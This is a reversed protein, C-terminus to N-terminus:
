RISRKPNILKNHKGIVLVKFSAVSIFQMIWRVWRDASGLDCFCKKIFNWDLHNCAKEMDLKIVM